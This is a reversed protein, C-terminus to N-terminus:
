LFLRSILFGEEFPIRVLHAFLAYFSAGCLAAYVLSVRWSEGAGLRLYALTVLPVTLPFGVLWVALIFGLIWGVMAVSRRLRIEPPVASALAEADSDDPSEPEPEPPADVPAARRRLEVAVQLVALFVGVLAIAIPFLRAQARFGQAMMLAWGFLGVLALGFLVEYTRSM